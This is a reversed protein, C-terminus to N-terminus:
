IWSAAMASVIHGPLPVSAFSAFAFEFRNGEVAAAAVATVVTV